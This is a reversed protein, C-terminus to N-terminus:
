CSQIMPATVEFTSSVHYRGRDSDVSEPVPNAGNQLVNQLMEGNIDENQHEGFSALGTGSDTTLSLPAIREVNSTIFKM